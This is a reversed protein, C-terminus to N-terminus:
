THAQRWRCFRSPRKPDTSWYFGWQAPLEEPQGTYTKSDYPQVLKVANGKATQCVYGAKYNLYQRAADFAPLFSEEAIIETGSMDPAREQLSEAATRGIKRMTDLVFAKNAESM